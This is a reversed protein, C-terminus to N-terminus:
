GGGAKMREIHEKIKVVAYTENDPLLNHGGLVNHIIEKKCKLNYSQPLGNEIGHANIDLALVGKASPTCASRM